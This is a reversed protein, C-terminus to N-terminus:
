GSPVGIREMAARGAAASIASVISGWAMDVLSLTIPWNKLTALNTLDYTAYAFFGFLAGSALTRGWPAASDQPWVVFVCLGLAFVAYFLLAVVLNPREAMLHGIGQQYLSRAVVSIWLLDLAIMVIATAAFTAAHKPMPTM